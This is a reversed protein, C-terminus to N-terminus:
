IFRSEGLTWSLIMVVLCAFDVENDSNSINLFGSVSAVVAVPSALKKSLLPSFTDRIHSILALGWTFETLQNLFETGKWTFEVLPLWSIM